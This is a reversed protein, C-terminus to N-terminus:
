WRRDIIESKNSLITISDANGWSSSNGKMYSPRNESDTRTAHGGYRIKSRIKLIRIAKKRPVMVTIVNDNFRGIVMALTKPTGQNLKSRLKKLLKNKFRDKM